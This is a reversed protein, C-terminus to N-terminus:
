KDVKGKKLGEIDVEVKNQREWIEESRKEHKVQWDNLGKISKTITALCNYKIHFLMVLVLLSFLMQPPIIKFAEKFLEKVILPIM